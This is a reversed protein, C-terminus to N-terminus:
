KGKGKCALCARTGRPVPRPAPRGGGARGGSRGRLGAHRRDRLGRYSSENDVVHYHNLSSLNTWNM